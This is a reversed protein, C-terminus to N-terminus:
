ETDPRTDRAKSSSNIAVAEMMPRAQPGELCATVGTVAQGLQFGAEGGTSGTGEKNPHSKELAGLALFVMTNAAPDM